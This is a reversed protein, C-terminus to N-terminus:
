VVEAEVSDALKAIEEASWEDIPRFSFLSDWHERPNIDRQSAYRKCATWLKQKAADVREMSAQANIATYVEEASAIGTDSGIGLFALARGVASTECNEVYSTKNVPGGGTRVEYAHGTALLAEGDYVRAVFDCRTGDDSLKETVIRGEPFMERFGQVKSHVQAYLKGKISIRELKSNVEALTMRGAM